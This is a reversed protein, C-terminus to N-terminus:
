WSYSGSYSSPPLFYFNTTILLWHFNSPHHSTISCPLLSCITSPTTPYSFTTVKKSSAGWLTSILILPSKPVSSTLELNPPHLPASFRANSFPSLPYCPFHFQFPWQPSQLHASGHIALFINHLRLHISSLLQLQHNTLKIHASTYFGIKDVDLFTVHSSFITWTFQVPYRSSVSLSFSFLIIAIPGWFSSVM